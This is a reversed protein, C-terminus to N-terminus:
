RHPKGAPLSQLQPIDAETIVIEPEDACDAHETAISNLYKALWLYKQLVDLKGAAGLANEVIIKKIDTLVSPFSLPENLESRIAGLYDVFHLGDEGQRLVNGLYGLEDEIDHHDARLRDDEKLKQFAEPDVVIRPYKAFQSELEYARVMAPGFLVDQEQHMDGIAVGGRIFIGRNALEFQAHVLDLIEHNLSGDNYSGDYPRV